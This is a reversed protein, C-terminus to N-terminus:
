LFSVEEVGRSSILWFSETKQLFEHDLLLRAMYHIKKEAKGRFAVKLLLMQAFSCAVIRGNTETAAFKMIASFDSDGHTSSEFRTTVKINSSNAVKLFLSSYFFSEFRYVSDLFSVFHARSKLPSKRIPGKIHTKIESHLVESPSSFVRKYPDMVPFSFLSKLRDELLAIEARFVELSDMYCETLNELQSGLLEKVAADRSDSELMFRLDSLELVKESTAGFLSSVDWGLGRIEPVIEQYDQQISKSIEILKNDEFFLQAQALFSLLNQGSLRSSPLLGRIAKM